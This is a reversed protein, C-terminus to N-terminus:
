GQFVTNSSEGDQYVLMGAELRGFQMKTLNGQNDGTLM